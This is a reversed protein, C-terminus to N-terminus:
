LFLPVLIGSYTLFFFPRAFSATAHSIRGSGLQPSSSCVVTYLELRGLLMCLSLVWKGLAPVAMYNDMPGVAGFGPGVNGITAAVSSLATIMDLGLCSMVVTAGAFLAIYLIFFATVSAIADRPVPKGCVRCNMIGQPHLIRLLEVKIHRLVLM